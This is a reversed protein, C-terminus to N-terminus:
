GIFKTTIMIVSLELSLDHFIIFADLFAHNKNCRIEFTLVAVGKKTSRDKERCPVTTFFIFM